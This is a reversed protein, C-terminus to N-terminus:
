MGKLTEQAGYYGLAVSMMMGKDEQKRLAAGAHIAADAGAPHVQMRGLILWRWIYCCVM